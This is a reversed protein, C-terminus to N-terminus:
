SAVSVVISVAELDDDIDTVDVNYLQGSRGHVQIRSGIPLRKYRNKYDEVGVELDATLPKRHTDKVTVAVGDAALVGKPAVSQKDSIVGQFVVTGEPAATIPPPAPAPAPAPTQAWVPPSEVIVPQSVVYAPESVIMPAAVVPYSHVAVTEHFGFGVAVSTHSGSRYVVPPHYPVPRRIVGYGHPRVLPPSLHRGTPRHGAGGRSEIHSPQRTSVVRLRDASATRVGTMPAGTFGGPRREVRTQAAAPGSAWLAALVAACLIRVNGTTM